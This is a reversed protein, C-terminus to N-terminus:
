LISIKLYGSELNLNLIAELDALGEQHHRECEIEDCGGWSRCNGEEARRVAVKEEYTLSLSLSLKRSIGLIEIYSTAHTNDSSAIYRL